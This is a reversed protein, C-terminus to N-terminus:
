RSRKIQAHRVITPIEDSRAAMYENLPVEPRGGNHSIIEASALSGIWGCEEPSRATVLGFMVGAAYLDGAGTTDVVAPTSAAPMSIARGGAVIVSGLAGRTIAAFNVKRGVAALAVQWVDTEALTKLETENAFLIDVYSEIFDLLAPRHRQVCFADSLSLAVRRGASRATRAAFRFAEQANPPDFLYGELYLISSSRILELDLDKVKLCVCAGLYTNMTRQADPTVLILCHATAPGDTAPRTAYRVGLSAMDARFVNGLWDDHVKGIYGVKAGLSALGAITNAASGGSLQIRPCAKMHKQLEISMEQDILTMAAKPLGLRTVTADDTRYIVDVIANGIGTVDVTESM